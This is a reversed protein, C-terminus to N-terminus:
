RYKKYLYVVLMATIGSIIAFGPTSKSEKAPVNTDNKQESTHGVNVAINENRQESAQINNTLIYKVFADGILANGAQNPHVSDVYNTSNYDDYQGNNPVLDIIDYVNFVAYGAATAQSSLNQDFYTTNATMGRIDPTLFIIPTVGRSKAQSAMWMIDDIIDQQSRFAKLDNAGYMITVYEPKYVAMCDLFRLKGEDTREGGLGVNYFTYEPSLTKNAYYVYAGYPLGAKGGATISDGICMFHITKASSNTTALMSQSDFNTYTNTGAYSLSNYAFWIGHYISNAATSRGTCNVLNNCASTNYFYWGYKHISDATVNDFTNFNSDKIYVGDGNTGNSLCYTNKFSNNNSNGDIYIASSQISYFACNAFNNYNSSSLDVCHSANDYGTCNYFTDNYANSLGLSFHSTSNLVCNIVNSNNLMIYLANGSTSKANCNNVSCNTGSLYFGQGAIATSTVNDIISDASNKVFIVHSSSSSDHQVAYFNKLVLNNKGSCTIAYGTGSLGCDITYGHGDLTINNAAVNFATGNASINGLLDYTTGASNLSYSSVFGATIDVAAALGTLANLLILM